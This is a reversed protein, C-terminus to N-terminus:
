LRWKRFWDLIVRTGDAEACTTLSTDGNGYQSPWDHYMNKYLYHVVTENWKHTTVKRPGLCLESTTNSNADFGNREAWVNVWAPVSTTNANGRDNLGGEYHITNDKAGHLEMIPISGRTPTPNCSPLKQSNKELYFAGSVAAFAAIRQTAIPDCALVGTFGGGNSKGSAYIRTTDICYHDM